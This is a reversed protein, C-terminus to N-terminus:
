DHDKTKNGISKKQSSGNVSDLISEREKLLRKRELDKNVRELEENIQDLGQNLIGLAEALFKFFGSILNLLDKFARWM